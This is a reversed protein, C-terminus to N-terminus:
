GGAITHCASVSGACRDFHRDGLSALDTWWVVAITTDDVRGIAPGRVLTAAEALAAAGLLFVALLRAFRPTSKVSTGKRSNQYRSSGLALGPPM